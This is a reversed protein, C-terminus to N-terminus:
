FTAPSTTWLNFNNKKELSWITAWLWGVDERKQGRVTGPIDISHRCVLLCISWFFDKLCLYTFSHIFLYVLWIWVPCSFLLLTFFFLRYVIRQVTNNKAQTGYGFYVFCTNSACAQFGLMWSTTCPFLLLLDFDDETLRLYVIVQRLFFKFYFYIIFFCM